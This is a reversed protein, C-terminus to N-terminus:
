WRRGRCGGGEADVAAAEGFEDAEEEAVFEIVQGFAGEDAELGGGGGVVFDGEGEGVVAGAEGGVGDEGDEVGEEDAIVGGLFGADVEHGAVEDDEVVAAADM